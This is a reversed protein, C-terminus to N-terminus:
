SPTKSVGQCAVEEAAEAHDDGPCVESVDIGALPWGAAALTAAVRIIDERGPDHHTTQSIFEEIEDRSVSGDGEAKHKSVINHVVEDLQDQTLPTSKLLAFLAVQDPGPVGQPYGVDLWRIVSRLFKAHKHNEHTSTM